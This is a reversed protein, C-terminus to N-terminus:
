IYRLQRLRIEIAAMTVNFEKALDQINNIKSNTILFDLFNKPILINLAFLNADIDKYNSNESNIYNDYRDNCFDDITHGLLHHGIGHAISYNQRYINDDSNIKIIKKNVNIYSMSSLKEISSDKLNSFYLVEIDLTKAIELPSVPVYRFNQILNYNFRM